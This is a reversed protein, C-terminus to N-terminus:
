VLLQIPTADCGLLCVVQGPVKEGTKFQRKSWEGFGGIDGYHVEADDGLVAHTPSLRVITGSYAYRQGMFIYKKGEQFM